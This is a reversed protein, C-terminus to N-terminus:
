IAFVNRIMCAVFGVLVSCRRLEALVSTVRGISVYSPRYLEALLSSTM